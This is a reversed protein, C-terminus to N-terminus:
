INESNTLAGLDLLIVDAGKKELFAYMDQLRSFSKVDSFHKKLLIDLTTLLGNNPEVILIRGKIDM